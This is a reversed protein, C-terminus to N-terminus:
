KINKKLLKDDIAQSVEPYNSRIYEDLIAFAEAASIRTTDNPDLMRRMLEDIKPPPAPIRFREQYDRNVNQFSIHGGDKHPMTYLPYPNQDPYFAQYMIMGMAFVDCKKMLEAYAQKDGSESCKIRKLCDNISVYQSTSSIGDLEKLSSSDIKRAGGFDSIHVLKSYDSGKVLINEPKLDGHVIGKEHLCKVGYLCQYSEFLRQQISASTSKKIDAKYDGDYQEALYGCSNEDRKSAIQVFKIPPHEIGIDTYQLEKLMKYENLVDQQGALKAKRKALKMIMTKNTPNIIDVLMHIEGFNGSGLEKGISYINVGQGKTDTQEKPDILYIKNKFLVRNAVSNNLAKLQHRLMLSLVESEKEGPKSADEIIKKHAFFVTSIKHAQIEVQKISTLEKVQDETLHLRSAVSKINLLLTNNKEDKVKVYFGLSVGMFNIFSTFFRFIGKENTRVAINFRSDQPILKWRTTTKGEKILNDESNVSSGAIENYSINDM